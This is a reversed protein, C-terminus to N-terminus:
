ELIEDAQAVFAPPLTLGIAVAARLNLTLHYANPREVPMDSPQDGRLIRDIYYATRTYLFGPKIDYSMLGGSRVANGYALMAPLRRRAALAHFAPQDKAAASLNTDVLLADVGIANLGREAQELEEHTDAVFPLLTLRLQAAAARTAQLIADAAPGRGHLYGIRKAKPVAQKLLELRKGSIDLGTETMGTVNGGPKALTAVLGSEVPALSTIMVIPTERTRRMAARVMDNGSTAIVDVRTAVLDDFIRDRRSESAEASRWLIEINLDHVWGRTRLSDVLTRAGPFAPRPGVLDAAPIRWFVIALRPMPAARAHTGAISALALM